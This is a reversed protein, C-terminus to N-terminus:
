QQVQRQSFSVCIMCIYLMRLMNFDALMVLSTELDTEILIVFCLPITINVLMEAIVKFYFEWQLVLRTYHSKFM